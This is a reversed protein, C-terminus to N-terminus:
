LAQVSLIVKECTLAPSWQDALIDLYISGTKPDINPHLIKTDFVMTLPKIPYDKTFQVDLQFIGNEYLGVGPMIFKFHTDNSNLPEKLYMTFINLEKELRAKGKTLQIEPTPKKMVSALSIINKNAIKQIKLVEFVSNAPILVEYRDASISFSFETFDIELVSNTEFSQALSEDKSALIISPNFLTERPSTLIKRYESIDIDDLNIAVYM